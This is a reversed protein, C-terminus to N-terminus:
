SPITRCLACDARPLLDLTTTSMDMLDLTLLRGLLPNGLGSLLKIAEMAALCGVTGSVAGFVPFERKWHIPIGPIRCRLCPTQGPVVVTLNAELAFMACEVVPKGMRFAADHMAFREQFLPACDVVLDAAGVLETANEQSLNAAVAEIEMRPNLALLKRKAAEVRSKGLGDHDMLIQRNLDSPKLDGAHALILKGVGAAALEFAVPSGLGGLRSILVTAGKLLEQGPVGFGPLWTQWEYTAKEVETLARPKQKTWPQLM